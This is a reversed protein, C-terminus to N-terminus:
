KETESMLTSKVGDNLRDCKVDKTIFNVCETGKDEGQKDHKYHISVSSGHREQIKMIITDLLLVLFSRKM